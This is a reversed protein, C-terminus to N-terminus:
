TAGSGEKVRWRRTPKGKERKPLARERAPGKQMKERFECLLNGGGRAIPEEWNKKRRHCDIAPWRKKV